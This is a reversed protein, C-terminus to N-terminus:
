RSTLTESASASPPSHSACRAREEVDRFPKAYHTDYVQPSHGTMAAAVVVPLKAHATATAVSRRLVQPGVNGLGANTAARRVGRKAIRSAGM